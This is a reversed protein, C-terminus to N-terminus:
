SSCASWMVPTTANVARAPAPAGTLQRWGQRFGRSSDWWSIWSSRLKSLCLCCRWRTAARAIYWTWPSSRPRNKQQIIRSSANGTSRSTPVNSTRRSGSCGTSCLTASPVRSCTRRTERPTGAQPWTKRGPCLGHILRCRIEKRPRRRRTGRSAGPHATLRSHSRRRRWLWAVDNAGSSM